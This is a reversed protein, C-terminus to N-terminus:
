SYYANLDSVHARQYEEEVRTGRTGLKPDIIQLNAGAEVGAAVVDLGAAFENGEVM